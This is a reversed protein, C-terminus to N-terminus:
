GKVAALLFNPKLAEFSLRELQDAGRAINVMWVGIQPEAGASRSAETLADRAQAIHDISILNVVM